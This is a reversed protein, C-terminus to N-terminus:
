LTPGEPMEAWMFPGKLRVGIATVPWEDDAYWYAETVHKYGWINLYCVLVREEIPMTEHSKWDTM